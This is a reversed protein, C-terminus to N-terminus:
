DRRGKFDIKGGVEDTADSNNEEHVEEKENNSEAKSIVSEGIVSEEAPRINPTGGQAVIIDELTLAFKVPFTSPGKFEPSNIVLGYEEKRVIKAPYLRNDGSTGLRHYSYPPKTGRNIVYVTPCLEGPVLLSDWYDFGMISGLILIEDDGVIKNEKYKIDKQLEELTTSASVNERLREDVKDWLSAIIKVDYFGEDNKGIITAETDFRHSLVGGESTNINLIYGIMVSTGPELNQPNIKQIVSPSNRDWDKKEDNWEWNENWGKNMLEKTPVYAGSWGTEDWVLGKELAELRDNRHNYKIMVFALPIIVFMITGCCASGFSTEVEFGFTEPSYLLYFGFSVLSFFLIHQKPTRGIESTYVSWFLLIIIIILAFGTVILWIAFGFIENILEDVLTHGHLFM